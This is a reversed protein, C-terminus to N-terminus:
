NTTNTHHKPTETTEHTEHTETKRHALYEEVASHIPSTFVKRGQEVTVIVKAVEIWRSRRSFYIRRKSKKDSHM